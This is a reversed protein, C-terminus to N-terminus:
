VDDRVAWVWSPRRRGTGFTDVLHAPTRYRHQTPPDLPVPSSALLDIAEADTSPSYFHLTMSNRSNLFRGQESPRHISHVDRGGREDAVGGYFPVVAGRLENGILPAAGQPGM